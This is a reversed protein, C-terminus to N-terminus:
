SLYFSLMYGVIGFSLMVVISEIFAYSRWTDPQECRWIATGYDADRFAESMTRPAYQYRHYKTVFHEYSTM